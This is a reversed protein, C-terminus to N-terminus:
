KIRTVLFWNSTDRHGMSISIVSQYRNDHEQLMRLSANIISRLCCTLQQSISSVMHARIQLLNKLWENQLERVEECRM